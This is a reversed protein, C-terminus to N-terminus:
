DLAASREWASRLGDVLPTTPRGILRSLTGDTDALVGGAIGADMSTVFAATGEDLGAAMLAARQQDSTIPAFTVDRGLVEGAASALEEYGWAADGGFEYVQGLHGDELLVVAAGEAYDARSASAVQAQGVAAAIMGTERARALDPLYNETYWNNRVIVTPLGSERLIEETERHEAGLPWDFTSAKPASTYVLKRVGADAAAAIVARHGAVRTGPDSGSILLVDDVDALAARVTDPEAYDLRVTRVGLPRLDDAKATTRAGAVLDGTDAGRALLADIVLHGLQGGAGTILITM